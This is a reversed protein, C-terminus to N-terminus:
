FLQHRKSLRLGYGRDWDIRKSPLSSPPCSKHKHKSAQKRAETAQKNRSMAMAMPLSPSLSVLMGSIDTQRHGAPQLPLPLPVTMSTRRDTDLLSSHCHCAQWARRDTDPLCLPLPRDHGDIQTRYAQTATSTVTYSAKSGGRDHIHWSGKNMYDSNSKIGLFQLTQSVIPRALHRRRGVAM